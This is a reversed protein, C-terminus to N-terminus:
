KKISLYFYLDLIFQLNSYWNLEKNILLFILYNHNHKSYYSNWIIMLINGDYFFICSLMKHKHVQNYYLLIYM